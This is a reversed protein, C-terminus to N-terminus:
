NMREETVFLGAVQRQARATVVLSGPEALAQARAAINPVDGFIEGAADVVV